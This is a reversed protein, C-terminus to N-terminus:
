KIQFGESCFMMADIIHGKWYDWNHLGDRIRLEHKIKMQRLFNSLELQSYIVHDDDGCDLLIRVSNYRDSNEEKMFDFPNNERWMESTLPNNGYVDHFLHPIDKERFQTYHGVSWFSGSLAVCSGFLEPYKMSLTFAANGGMSLGIIARGEKGPNGYKHEIYPILDQIIMDEYNGYLPSNIYWSNKGDPMVIICPPIKGERIALHVQPVIDGYRIWDTENGSFGHLLYIVPLIKQREDLSDPLYISYRSETGLSQSFFSLSEMVKGQSWIAANYIFCIFLLFVTLLKPKM